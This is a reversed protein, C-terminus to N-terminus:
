LCTNPCPPLGRFAEVSASIDQFNVTANGGCPFIDAEDFTISTVIGRFVDVILSIDNFNVAGSENVDAYYDIVVCPETSEYAGLDVVGELIRTAGDLDVNTGAPLSNNDGANVCPSTELLRFNAPGAFQPDDGFNGVGGFSGTWGQMCTYDARNTANPYVAAYQDQIGGDRYNGWLISNDISLISGGGRLEIAGSDGESGNNAITCNIFRTGLLNSIDGDQYNNLVGGGGRWSTASAHNDAFLCNLFLTNDRYNHYAGGYSASNGIFTCSRYTAGTWVGQTTFTSIVAGAGSAASNNIFRCRTANLVSISQNWIAGGGIWGSAVTPDAAHNAEFLCDTLRLDHLGSGGSETYLGGGNQATNGRFDCDTFWLSAGNPWRARSYVGGGRDSAVNNTFSCQVFDVDAAPFSSSGIWANYYGGGKEAQNGTFSCGTVTVRDGETYIGGGNGAATNGTFSCNTFSPAYPVTGCPFTGDRGTWVGGGDSDCVNNIFTCGSVQTPGSHILLGAGEHGAYNDRFTCNEIVTALGHDNIAGHHDAHNDRITCNRITPGGPICKTIGDRIHVASGQDLAAAHEGNANGGSITFGDLVVDQADPDDYTVVQISNEVYGAFAPGDNGGLDGSLITEFAAVDRADPDPAGCGVYGGMLAVGDVLRFTAGRDGAAQGGGQDPRYTGNAVRIENVAGGAASLANQLNRYANCWSSGNAPGTADRDVYLVTQGHVAATTAFLWTVVSGFLNSKSM